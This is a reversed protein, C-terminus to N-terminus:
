DTKPRIRGQAHGAGIPIPISPHHPGQRGGRGVGGQHGAEPLQSQKARNGGPVGIERDASHHFNPKNQANPRRGVARAEDRGARGPIPKAQVGAGLRGAPSKAKNRVVPEPHGPRGRRSNPENRMKRGSADRGQGLSPRVPNTKRMQEAEWGACGSIPNTQVRLRRRLNAKNRLIRWGRAGEAGGRSTFNPENQVIPAAPRLRFPVPCADRRSETDLRCDLSQTRKACKARQTPKRSPGDADTGEASPRFPSRKACDARTEM